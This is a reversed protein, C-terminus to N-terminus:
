HQVDRIFNFIKVTLTLTHNCYFVTVNLSTIFLGKRLKEFKEFFIFFILFLAQLFVLSLIYYVKDVPSPSDGFPLASSESELM